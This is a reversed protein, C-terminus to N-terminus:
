HDLGSDFDMRVGSDDVRPKFNNLKYTLNFIVVPGEYRYWGESSFNDGSVTYHYLGSDFTNHTRLGLTLAKKFLSQKIIFDFYYFADAHGQPIEGPAYYIALFQLSTNKKITFTSTFSGNGQLSSGQVNNGDSLTGDWASHYLSVSLKFQLWDLPTYMGMLDTGANIEKDLNEYTSIFQGNEELLYSSIPSHAYRYFLETNMRFQENTWLYSLEYSDILSQELEPNGRWTESCDSSYIFPSLQWEDPRTVRRSYSLGFRHRQDLEKSLHVSPFLNIHTSGFEDGATKDQFRYEYIEARVGAQFSFWTSVNGALSLYSAVVDNRYDFEEVLDDENNTTDSMGTIGSVRYDYSSRQIDSLLGAELTLGHNMPLTYDANFRWQSRDSTNRIQQLYDEGEIFFDDDTQNKVGGYFAALDIQHGEKNRFQHTYSLDGSAYNNALAFEETNNEILTSDAILEPNMTFVSSIDRSFKWKGAKVSFSLSNRDNIDYDAGGQIEYSVRQITRRSDISDRFDESTEFVEHYGWNETRQTKNSCSFGAFTRFKKFQKNLMINGSYKDGNALSLNLIGEAMNAQTNKLKINIIGATGEAEYKVSPNTIIEISEITEALTQQLVQSAEMMTPKGNILLTFDASGRLLVNGYADVQVSPANQLADAATGGEAALEKSVAVVKKDIGYSVADKQVTIGFEQLEKVSVEMGIRGLDYQRMDDSIGIGPIIKERYGMYQIVLYYTGHTLGEISFMGRNNTIENAVNASDPLLILSVTAYELPQGSTGCIVTGRLSGPGGAYGYPSQLILLLMLIAWGYQRAKRFSSSSKM